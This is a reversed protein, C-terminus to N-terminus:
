KVYKRPLLLHMSIDLVRPATVTTRPQHYTKKGEVRHNPLVLHIERSVDQFLTLLVHGNGVRFPVHLKGLLDFM